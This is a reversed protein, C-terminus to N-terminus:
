SANLQSLTKLESLSMQMMSTGLGNQVQRWNKIMQLVCFHSNNISNPRISTTDSSVRKTTNQKGCFHWCIKHLPFLKYRTPYSNTYWKHMWIPIYYLINIFMQSFWCHKYRFANPLLPTCVWREKGCNYSFHKYISYWIQIVSCWTYWFLLLM